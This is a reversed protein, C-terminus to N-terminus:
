KKLLADVRKQAEKNGGSAAERYWMVAKQLDKEAGNGFEYCMGLM